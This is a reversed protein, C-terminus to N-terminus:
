QPFKSFISQIIEKFDNRYEPPYYLIANMLIDDKLVTKQYYINGDKTYDSIVFWNNNLKSYEVSSIDNEYFIDILTENLTNYYAYVLLYIEDNMYFKCGDGNTPEEQQIFCSPYLIAYNYRNNYYYNYQAKHLQSRIYDIEEIETVGMISDRLESRNVVTTDDIISKNYILIKDNQSKNKVLFKGLYISIVGYICLVILSTIITIVYIFITKKM